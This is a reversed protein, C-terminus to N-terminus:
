VHTFGLRMRKACRRVARRAGKGRNKPCCGSACIGTGGRGNAGSRQQPAIPAATSSWGCPPGNSWLAARVTAFVKPGPNYSPILVLHTNSPTVAQKAALPVAARGRSCGTISISSRAYLRGRGRASRIARGSAGPLHDPLEPRKFLPWGKSLFPSDTEIVLTQVPVNAYKAILGVSGVLRISPHGPRAPARPFCCCCAAPACIRWRNRSWKGRLTTESTAPSVHDPVWSYM